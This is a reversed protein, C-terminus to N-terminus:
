LISIINNQSMFTNPTPIMGVEAEPIQQTIVDTGRTKTIAVPVVNCQQGVVTQLSKTRQLLAPCSVRAADSIHGTDRDSGRAKETWRYIKRELYKARNNKVRLDELM